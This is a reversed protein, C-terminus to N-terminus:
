SHAMNFTAGLFVSQKAEWDEPTIIMEGQIHPEIEGYETRERLM